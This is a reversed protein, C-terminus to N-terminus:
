IRDFLSLGALRTFGAQSAELVTLLQQMQAITGALDVGGTDAKQTARSAAQDVQRDQIVDIWALRTGVVTQSRTLTDLAEDLGALGDRAAGAPDPSGGNIAASLTALFAFIDTPTGGANFNLVEPGTLGRTIAQGQGLDISGSAPSGVYSIVGGAGLEYAKGSAEGGFLANGSTDPSNATAMLRLRLQDLEAAISARETDGVTDSAAWLALERARIIDAGISELASSVLGLDQAARAANVADIEGLRDARDLSRLRSAAVPDDSSRSLRQGTSLQQQLAEAQGRLDGMQSATRRYFALTSNTIATM